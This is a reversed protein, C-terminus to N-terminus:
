IDKALPKLNNISSTKIQCAPKKRHITSITNIPRRRYGSNAKQKYSLGTKRSRRRDSFPRPVGMIIRIFLRALRTVSLRHRGQAKIGYGDTRATMFTKKAVMGDRFMGYALPRADVYGPEHREARIVFHDAIGTMVIMVLCIVLTHQSCIVQM